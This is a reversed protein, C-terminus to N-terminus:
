RLPFDLTVQHGPHRPETKLEGKLGSAMAKVIRMGLGTSTPKQETVGVGDDEVTLRARGAESTVIVRVEGGGDPYAYKLANTILEAAVIGLSVAKDTLVSVDEAQLTLRVQRRASHALEQILSDLYPKLAVKSVEGSTYLRQHVRAVAMIRARTEILADKAAPEGVQDTQMSVLTSVLQLSNAVRHNVENMLLESRDRAAKAQLEAELSRQLGFSLLWTAFTISLTIALGAVAIPLVTTTMPWGEFKPTASFRVLWRRGAVDHAVVKVLDDRGAQGAHSAYLLDGPTIAGDYVRVSIENLYGLDTLTSQFLGDNRFNAYVWGLFNHDGGGARNIPMYLLLHHPGTGPDRLSTLPSSLRPANASRASAMAGRRAPEAYMDTGTNKPTAARIPYSMLVASSADPKAPAGAKQLFSVAAAKAAPDAGAGMWWALGVARLGPYSDPVGAARLFRVLRETDPTDGAAESAAMSRLLVTYTDFSHDVARLAQVQLRDFHEQDRLRVFHATTFAAAATFILGSLLIAMPIAYQRWPLQLPKLKDYRLVLTTKLFRSLELKNWFVVLPAL